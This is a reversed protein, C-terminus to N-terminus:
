GLGERDGSVRGSVCVVGVTERVEGTSHNSYGNGNMGTQPATMCVTMEM